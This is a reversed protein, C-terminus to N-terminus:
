PGQKKGTTPEATAPPQKSIAHDHLWLDGGLEDRTLVVRDETTTGNFLGLVGVHTVEPPVSQLTLVVRQDSAPVYLTQPTGDIVIGKATMPDSWLEDFPANTFMKASEEGKLRLVKVRVSNPQKDPNLNLTAAGHLGLEFTKISSCAAFSMAVVAMLMLLTARM